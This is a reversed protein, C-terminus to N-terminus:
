PNYTKPKFPLDMQGYIDDIILYARTMLQLYKEISVDDEDVIITPAEQPQEITHDQSLEGTSHEEQPMEVNKDQPLEEQKPASQPSVVSSDQSYDPTVTIGEIQNATVIPRYYALIDECKKVLLELSSHAEAKGVLEDLEGVFKRYFEIEKEDM